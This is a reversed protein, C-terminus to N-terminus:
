RAAVQYRRLYSFGAGAVVIIFLVLGVASPMVRGAVTAPSAEVYEFAPFNDYDHTTLPEASLFRGTFYDVWEQHFALVQELYDAYRASSTGSLDSLARQTMIAPSLFQFWSVAQEQGQLQARFHDYIPKIAKQISNEKALTVSLFDNVKDGANPVYELHDYYYEDLAKMYEGEARTQADRAATTLEFRSPAPYLTTAAFSVLTPLIVVFVLWCAALIVGNTASSRGLANVLVALGFWFLSYLLVIGMWSAFYGWTAANDFDSGVALMAGFGFCLVVALIIAARSVVKAAILQRLSIPHSMLMALTGREKESSLLDYSAALIFIPVLFIVVFALDFPGKKLIVPNELESNRTVTIFNHMTVPVYSLLVDSQGVALPALGTAPLRAISSLQRGMSGANTAQPPGDGEDHSFIAAEMSAGTAKVKEEYEAVSARRRAKAADSLGQMAEVGRHQREMVEAGTWAGFAIAGALFVLVWLFSPSRVLSRAEHGIILRYM